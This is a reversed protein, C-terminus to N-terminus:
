LGARSKFYFIIGFVLMLMLMQSGKKKTESLIEAGVDAPTDVQGMGQLFGPRFAGEEPHRFNHHDRRAHVNPKKNLFVNQISRFFGSKSM